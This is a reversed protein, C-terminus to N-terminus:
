NKGISQGDRNMSSITQRRKWAMGYERERERECVCVNACM